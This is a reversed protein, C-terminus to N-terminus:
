KSKCRDEEEKAKMFEMIQNLASKADIDDIVLGKEYEGVREAPAGINFCAVPLGMSIAESTTYSFTEPWVSSIFIMDIQNEEVLDPLDETSYAGTQSYCKYENMPEGAYGILKIRVPLRKRDILRCMKQVIHLGKAVGLGGLLGITLYRRHSDVEVKDLPKPQHPILKVNQSIGPYAKELHAISDRSFATIEDCNQLFEGWEERWQVMDVDSCPLQDCEAANKVCCFEEKEDLLTIRPCICFFDHLRFVLKAKSDKAYELIIRQTDFLNPYSVLENIWIESPDKPMVRLIDEIRKASFDYSWKGSYYTATYGGLAEKYRIVIIKGGNETIDEVKGTLYSTAGGGWAHDFAIITKNAPLENLLLLKVAERINQCPDNQCFAAVDRDYDRHKKLLARHNREILQRKREPTFSAGHQHYVFLNEVVVNRFGKERARQCWDNEEGYGMAFNKEDYLGVKEIAKRNIAMCFGVGTPITAYAPVIKSFAEDIEDVNKGLFLKNNKCFEPFSCIEGSNTFPTASAIDDQLIIPAMLRELWLNPLRIDSNLLVVNGKTLKLAKNISGTYGLNRENEILTVNSHASAYERLMPLIRRDTSKDDLIILNYPMHTRSVSNLLPPLIHWGNYVPLILDVTEEYLNRGPEYTEVTLVDGINSLSFNEKELRVGGDKIKQRVKWLTCRVGDNKLSKLGKCILHAVKSNRFMAKIVDMIKRFPKTIKWFFANSITDYENCKQRYAWELHAIREGQSQILAEQAIARERAHDQENDAADLWRKMREAQEEKQALREDMTRLLEGQRGLLHIMEEIEAGRDLNDSM